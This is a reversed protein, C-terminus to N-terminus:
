KKEDGSILEGLLYTGKDRIAPAIVSVDM